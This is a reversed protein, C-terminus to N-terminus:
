SNLKAQTPLFMCIKYEDNRFCKIFISSYPAHLVHISNYEGTTLAMDTAVHIPTTKIGSYMYYSNLDELNAGANILIQMCEVTNCRVQLNKHADSPYQKVLINLPTVTPTLGCANVGNELLKSLLDVSTLIKKSLLGLDIKEPIIEGSNLVLLAREIEAAQMTKLLYETRSNKRLKQMLITQCPTLFKTNLLKCCFEDESGDDKIFELIQKKDYSLLSM